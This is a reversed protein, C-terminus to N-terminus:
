PQAPETLYLYFKPEDDGGYIIKTPVATLIQDEATSVVLTNPRDLDSSRIKDTFLFNNLSGGQYWIPNTRRVFLAYIYPQGNLSSFIIQDVKRYEATGQEHKVAESMAEVYGDKFDDASISAYETFYHHFYSTSLLGSWLVLSGLVVKVLYNAQGQSGKWTRNLPQQQLWTSLWDVGAIALWILGPLALLARNSHPLDVGIAAPTLGFLVWLLSFTLFKLNDSDITHSKSSVFSVVEHLWRFIGLGVMLFTTIFLVGWQGDGHRFNITEGQLLFSLKLHAMFGNLTMLLIQPLSYGANLVSAQVMRSSGTGYIHDYVLPILFVLISTMFLWFHWQRHLTKKWFFLLLVGITAPVMFKASHYTYMSLSLLLSASLPYLLKLLPKNPTQALVKLLFYVGWILLSLAIGSEFAVRSYHFHWPSLTLIIGSLLVLWQRKLKVVAAPLVESTLAMIGAVAAIGALAFPLRVVWIKMGLFYTFIGNLYIAFPAKYDGFSKFSLPLRQLWEDSHTTFIAYGNYGIAAEDWALGHPVAGLQYLRLGAAVLIVLLATLKWWHKYCLVYLRYLVVEIM